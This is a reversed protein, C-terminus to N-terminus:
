PMKIKSTPFLGFNTINNDVVNQAKLGRPYLISMYACTNTCFLIFYGGM